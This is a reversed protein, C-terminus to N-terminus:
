LEIKMHSFQNQGHYDQHDLAAETLADRGFGMQVLMQLDDGCFSALVHDNSGDLPPFQPDNLPDMPYQATTGQAISNHVAPNKQHQRHGFLVSAASSDPPLIPYQIADNSQFMEKSMLADVKYDPSTNVSALKMSLFEVQHQLSQVYNIIEDLMLAKGTVKDCGPVLDQLFKMRESIKERRVREALSHSDTAQGRRARVHIYDKVEAKAQKDESATGTSEKPDHEAKGSCNENGVGENHKCRKADSNENAEEVKADNSSPLTGASGKAKGKPAAKRKKSGSENSVRLGIEVSPIQDSLSSGEQSNSLEGTDQPPSNKNQEAAMQSELAELSPSSSVRALKGNAMPPMSRNVIEDNKMGFQGSRGNFSWSGYCSFRAARKALGPDPSFEALGSNLPMVAHGLKPLHHNEQFMHDLMPVNLKPPSDVPTSYCSSNTSNDGGIHSTVKAPMTTFLQHSRPPAESSNSVVGLKGVLERMVFSNNSINSTAMSGAPSSSGISSLASDFKAVGHDTTSKERGPNYFCNLETPQADMASSLSQWTSLLLMSSSSSASSEVQLTPPPVLTGGCTFFDNEM